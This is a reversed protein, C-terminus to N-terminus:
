TGSSSSEGAWVHVHLGPPAGATDPAGVGTGMPASGRQEARGGTAGAARRDARTPAPCCQDAGAQMRRCEGTGMPVRRCEGAGTPVRRYGGAGTPVRRYGGASAPLRRCEGGGTPVAQVRRCGGPGAPVRRGDARLVLRRCASVSAAGVTVPHVPPRPSGAYAPGVLGRCPHFCPVDRFHDCFMWGSTAESWSAQRLDEAPSSRRRHARSRPVGSWRACIILLCADSVTELGQRRRVKPPWRVSSRAFLEVSPKRCARASRFEGRAGDYARRPTAGRPELASRSVRARSSATRAGDGSPRRSGGIEADRGLVPM